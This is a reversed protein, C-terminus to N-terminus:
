LLPIVIETRLEAAPTTTPDNQYFEYSHDALQCGQQTAWQLIDEYTKGVKQYPGIHTAYIAQSNKITGPQIDGSGKDPEPIIFGIEIDWKRTMIFWFKRFGKLKAMRDWDAGFYKSYPFEIPEINNKQLYKIIYEYTKGFIKGLKMTSVQARVSLTHRLPFDKIECRTEM